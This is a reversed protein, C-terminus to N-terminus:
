AAKRGSRVTKSAWQEIRIRGKTARHIDVAFDVSIRKPQVGRCARTVAVRDLNNTACFKTISIDLEALLKLLQRGAETQWPGIQM